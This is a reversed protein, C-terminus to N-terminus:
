LIHEKYIGETHLVAQISESLATDALCRQSADSVYASMKPVTSDHKISHFALLYIFQELM